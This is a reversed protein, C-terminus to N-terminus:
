TSVSGADVSGQGVAPQGAHSVDPKSTASGVSGKKFFPTLAQAVEGPTQFRREPDKAMMKTVLSALEVPVEPRDLNLPQAELSFHAQYVDRLHTGRFPPGGTLLYYFTCGLNYIDARIETSQADRIQEPAIYDPTGLMQGKRVPGDDAQGEVYKM